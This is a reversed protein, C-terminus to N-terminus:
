AALATLKKAELEVAGAARRTATIAYRTATAKTLGVLVTTIGPTPDYTLAHGDITLAIIDDPQVALGMAVGPQIRAAGAMAPGAALTYDATTQARTSTAAPFWAYNIRGTPTTGMLRAAVRAAFSTLRQYNM